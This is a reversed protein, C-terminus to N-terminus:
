KVFSNSVFTHISEWDEKPILVYRGYLYLPPNYLQDEFSIKQIQGDDIGAILKAVTLLQALNMDTDTARDIVDQLKSAREMTFWRAPHVVTDKVAILVDQQRRSRAFDSGESGEAHRSRVYKLAREGDMHQMGADFHVTEYVCRNTPDGPCTDKEKGAIPYDNDTFAKSVDVNIGGLLDIVDKFGSFDLLLSYHIPLGVVDEAVVKSLLLGGGDKKEEGYHYASNVKDKLTESWVDRPISIFAATKHQQDLSVIMMTDTLDAGEHNGGGVGLLLINTRSQASALSVGDDVILRATQTPTLGTTRMFRLGILMGYIFLAAIGVIVSWVIIRGILSAARGNKKSEM